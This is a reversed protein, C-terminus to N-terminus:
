RVLLARAVTSLKAYNTMTTISFWTTPTRSQSKRHRGYTRTTLGESTRTQTFIGQKPEKWGVLGILILMWAYHFLQNHDQAAICDDTFQHFLYLAWNYQVGDKATDALEIAPGSVQNPKCKRLVWGALLQVTFWLPKDEIHAVDYARGVRTM